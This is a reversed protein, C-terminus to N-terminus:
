LYFIIMVITNKQQNPSCRDCMQSVSSLNFYTELIGLITEAGQLMRMWTIFILVGGHTFIFSYSAEKAVSQFM